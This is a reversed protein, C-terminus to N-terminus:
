AWAPLRAGSGLNEVITTYQAGPLTTAQAAPVSHTHTPPPTLTASMQEAFMENMLYTLM